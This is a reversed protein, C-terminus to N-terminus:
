GTIAVIPWFSQALVENCTRRGEQQTKRRELVARLQNLEQLASRGLKQATPFRERYHELLDVVEGIAQLM